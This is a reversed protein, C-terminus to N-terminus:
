RQHPNEWPVANGNKSLSDAQHHADPVSSSRYVVPQTVHRGAPVVISSRVEIYGNEKFAEEKNASATKDCLM